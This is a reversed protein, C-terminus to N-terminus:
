PLKTNAQQKIHLLGPSTNIYMLPSRCGADLFVQELHDFLVPRDPWRFTKATSRYAEWQRHLDPSRALVAEQVKDCLFLACGLPRVQWRCGNEGLYICKAAFLPNEIATFLDDIQHKDAEAVNIVVDAWFTIIGDKSCCASTRSEFCARNCFAAFHRKSFEDLQRRFSLYPRIAEDQLSRLLEIRNTIQNLADLQEAQYANM